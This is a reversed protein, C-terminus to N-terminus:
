GEDKLMKLFATKGKCYYKVIYYYLLKYLSLHLM